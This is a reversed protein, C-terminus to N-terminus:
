PVENELIAPRVSGCRSHSQFTVQDHIVSWHLVLKACSVTVCVIIALTLHGVTLRHNVKCIIFVHM